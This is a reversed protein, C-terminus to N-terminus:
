ANSRRMADNVFGGLPMSLLKGAADHEAAAARGEARGIRLGSLETSVQEAFANARATGGASVSFFTIFLDPPVFTSWDPRVHAAARQLNALTEPAMDSPDRVCVVAFRLRSDSGGRWVTALYERLKAIM